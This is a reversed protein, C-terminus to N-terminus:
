LNIKEQTKCIGLVGCELLDDLVKGYWKADSVKEGQFEECKLKMRDAFLQLIVENELKGEIIEFFNTWPTHVSCTYSADFIQTNYESTQEFVTLSKFNLIYDVLLKLAQAYSQGQDSRVNEEIRKCIKDLARCSYDICQTRLKNESTIISVLAQILNQRLDQNDYLEKIPQTRLKSLASALSPDTPQMTPSNWNLVIDLSHM